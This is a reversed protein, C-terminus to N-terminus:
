RYLNFGCESCQLARTFQHAQPSVSSMWRSWGYSGDEQKTWYQIDMPMMMAMGPSPGGQRSGVANGQERQARAQETLRIRSVLIEKGCQPCSRYHVRVAQGGCKPCEIPPAETTKKNFEDGCDLCQWQGPSAESGGMFFYALAVVAVATAVLCIIIFVLQDKAVGTRLGAPVLEPQAGVGGSKAMQNNM